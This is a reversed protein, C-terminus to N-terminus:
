RDRKPGGPGRPKRPGRPGAPRNGFGRRSGSGGKNGTFPRGAGAGPNGAKWSGPKRPRGGGPGWPKRAPQGEARRDGWSGIKRADPSGPKGTQSGQQGDAGAPKGWGRKKFRARKQDRTLKFRERPDVHSGGPRWTPPRDSRMRRKAELAERAAIPSEWLQGRDFWRLVVAPQTRRLQTLTPVLDDRHKARFSTPTTGDVIVWFAHPGPM